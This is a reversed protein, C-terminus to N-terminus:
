SNDQLIKTSHTQINAILACACVYFQCQFNIIMTHLGRYVSGNVADQLRVSGTINLNTSNELLRGKPKVFLSKRLAM